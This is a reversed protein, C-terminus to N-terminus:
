EQSVYDTRARYIAEYVSIRKTQVVSAESVIELPDIGLGFTKGAVADRLDKLMTYTGPSGGGGKRREREGRLNGDAVLISFSMAQEYLHVPHGGRDYASDRFVVLAAPFRLVVNEIADALDGQYSRATKLYGAMPSSNIADLLADEVTAIDPM